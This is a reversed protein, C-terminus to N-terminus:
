RPQEIMLQDDGEGEYVVLSRRAAHEPSLKNLLGERVETNEIFNPTIGKSMRLVNVAPTMDVCGKLVTATVYSTNSTQAKSRRKHPKNKQLELDTVNRKALEPYLEPHYLFPPPPRM